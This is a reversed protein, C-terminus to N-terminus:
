GDYKEIAYYGFFTHELPECIIKKGFSTELEKLFVEREGCFAALLRSDATIKVGSYITNVFIRVVERRMQGVTWEISPLRGTGECCRCNTTMQQHLSPRTKKRTIQMLGLETMGVVVTKIRDNKVAQELTHKLLRKDEQSVMDIFDVIIMGSLNRLRLQAAIEVAAELNTKRITKQLDRRGTYKGTNVDIVVCAETQEIVLFGGSKLWVKRDLAKEAQSEVFYNEFLTNKEECFVLKIGKEENFSGTALLEEYIAKDNVVFEQINDSLLDRAAKMAPSAEQYLLSPAKAYQGKKCVEKGINLLTSIEKEYDAATKGTGNTRVIVGYGEPLLQEVTEKIRRREAIDTIKKSIGIEGDEGPLLVLFKGPFSLKDTVVAGKTGMADKAVQVLITDGNKPKRSNKSDIDTVAREQGYYLYANKKQGIEVFAAQMGPLVTEVRGAYINGILSEERKSEYYLEALRGDEVVAIRTQHVSTDVLVRNM